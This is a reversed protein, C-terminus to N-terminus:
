APDDPSLDQPWSEQTFRMVRALVPDKSTEKKVSAADTPQVQLSLAEIACVVDADDIAEERDVIRNEGAPLRGLADANQYDKTRRYEITYHFQGLFLAWGPVPKDPGFLALLPKHDTVLIFTRGFLYQFFKKLAFVIALAEKQIQSCHQQSSILLKSVNAIPRRDGNPYRHFLTAGIGISSADCAIELRLSSDFRAM